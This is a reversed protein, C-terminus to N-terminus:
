STCQRPRAPRASRATGDRGAPSGSAALFLGQVVGPNEGPATTWSRQSDLCITSLYSTLRLSPSVAAHSSPRKSRKGDHGDTNRDRQGQSSPPPPPFLAPQGERPTLTFSSRLQPTTPTVNPPEGHDLAPLHPFLCTSGDSEKRPSKWWARLGGRRNVLGPHPVPRSPSPLSAPTLQTAM